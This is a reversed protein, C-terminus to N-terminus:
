GKMEVTKIAKNDDSSDIKDMRNYALDPSSASIEALKQSFPDQSLGFPNNYKVNSQSKKVSTSEDLSELDENLNFSIPTPEKHHM